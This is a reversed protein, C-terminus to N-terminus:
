LRVKREPVAMRRPASDHRQELKARMDSLVFTHAEAVLRRLTGLEPGTPDRGLAEKMTVVFPTENGNGGPIFSSCYALGAYTAFSRRELAEYVTDNLKVEKCRAQFVATSDLNVSM